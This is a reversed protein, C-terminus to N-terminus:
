KPDTIKEYVWVGGKCRQCPPVIRGKVVVSENGCKPCRLVGSYLAREGAKVKVKMM